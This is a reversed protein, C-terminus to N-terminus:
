TKCTVMMMMMMMLELDTQMSYSTKILDTLIPSKWQLKRRGGEWHLDPGPSFASCFSAFFYGVNSCLTSFILFQALSFIRKCIQLFFELMDSSIKPNLMGFFHAKIDMM